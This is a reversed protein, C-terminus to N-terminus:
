ILVKIVLANSDKGQSQIEINNKDEVSLPTAIYGRRLEVHKSFTDCSSKMVM